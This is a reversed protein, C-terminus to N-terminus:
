HNLQKLWSSCWGNVAGTVSIPWIWPTQSWFGTPYGNNKLLHATQRDSSYFESNRTTTLMSHFSNPGWCNTMQDLWVGMASSAFLKIHGNTEPCLRDKAKTTARRTPRFDNVHSRKGHSSQSSASVFWYILVAHSVWGPLSIKKFIPKPKEGWRKFHLPSGANKPTRHTGEVPLRWKTKNSKATNCTVSSALLLHGQDQPSFKQQRAHLQIRRHRGGAGTALQFNSAKREM